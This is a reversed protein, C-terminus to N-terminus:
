SLMAHFHLFFDESEDYTSSVKHRHPCFGAYIPSKQHKELLENKDARSPSKPCKRNKFAYLYM